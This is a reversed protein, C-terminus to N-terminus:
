QGLLTKSASPQGAIATTSASQSNGYYDGALM